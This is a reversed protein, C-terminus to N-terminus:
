DRANFGSEFFVRLTEVPQDLLLGPNAGVIWFSFCSNGGGDLLIKSIQSLLRDKSIFFASLDSVLDCLKRGVRMDQELCLSDLLITEM